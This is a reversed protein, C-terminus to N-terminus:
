AAKREEFVAPEVATAPMAPLVPEAVSRPMPALLYVVVGMSSAVLGGLVGDPAIPGLASMAFSAAIGALLARLSSM